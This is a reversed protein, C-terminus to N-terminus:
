TCKSGHLHLCRDCFHDTKCKACTKQCKGCVNRKMMSKSSSSSKGQIVICKCHGLHAKTVCQRCWQGNCGASCASLECHPCAVVGCSTCQNSLYSGDLTRCRVHYLRHCSECPKRAEQCSKSTEMNCLTLTSECRGCRASQVKIKPDICTDLGCTRTGCRDCLPACGVCKKLPLIGCAACLFDQSAAGLHCHGCTVVDFNVNKNTLKNLAANMFWADQGFSKSDLQSQEEATIPGRHLVKGLTVRSIKSPYKHAATKVLQTLDAALQYSYVNWCSEISISDINEIYKVSLLVSASTIVTSDLHVYCISKQLHGRQQLYIVLQYYFKDTVLHHYSPDFTITQWVHPKFIIQHLRRCLSSLRLKSRVDLYACILGLAKSPMSALNKLDIKNNPIFTHRKLQDTVSSFSPNPIMQATEDQSMRHVHQNLSSPTLEKLPEELSTKTDFHTTASHLLSGQSSCNPSSTTSAIELKSTLTSDSAPVKSQTAIFAIDQQCLLILPIAIMVGNPKRLKVKKDQFLCVYTAQVQYKGDNGLWLREVSM